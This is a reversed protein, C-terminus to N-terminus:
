NNFINKLKISQTGIRNTPSLVCYYHTDENKDILEIKRNINVNYQMINYM